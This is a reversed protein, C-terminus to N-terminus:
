IKKYAPCVIPYDCWTCIFGPRPEFNKEVIKKIDAEITNMVANMDDENRIKSVIENTKLYYLSLKSPRLKLVKETAIAYIDLQMQSKSSNSNEKLGGTKYDIIEVTGDPLPDIRDIYGKLGHEGIKFLFEEEVYLPAKFKGENNKYFEKLIREGEVKYSGAQVKNPYGTPTWHKEFLKLLEDFTLIVGGKCRDYFEKLVNHIDTGFQRAASPKGPINYIYAFKYKLPCTEYTYIQTYSLRLAKPITIHTTGLLAPVSLGTVVKAEECIKYLEVELKKLCEPVVDKNLKKIFTSIIDWIRQQYRFKTIDSTTLGIDLVDIVDKELKGGDILDIAKDKPKIVDNIFRSAKQYPKDMFSLYLKEKARTMSVYCLRREEQTHYDGKPLKEKMLEEPFYIQEPRKRTPFRNQVLGIVFVYKFELGKAQHITMLQVGEAGEILEDGELSGGAEIYSNLYELFSSLTHDEHEELYGNIFRQFRAINLIKTVNEEELSSTLNLLYRTRDFLKNIVESLDDKQATHILEVLTQKIASLKSKTDESIDIQNLKDLADYLSIESDKACTNLKVIEALDIGYYPISCVRFASLSDKPNDILRLYSIIDKIEDQEFLSLGGIVIHPIKEAVLRKIAENRHAHARYLIAFNSYSREEEPLAAYVSKIKNVVMMAEQSYNLVNILEIGAGASNETWLEKGPDYRDPDNHKILRGAVELIKKTSRYNQTLRLSKVDPFKERFKLFSAYSAGRFRYIAQDDDGVACINREESALLAVLEIQAINTDQFEDVLIHRFQKRYRDLIDPHTKFLRIANLILDGFDLCGAGQMKEQYTKYVRAIEMQKKRETEDENAKAYAAYEDPFIFEDKARGIFRLFGYICDTPDALKFHYKLGLDGLIKKFFIWQEIRDLLRFKSPLGIEFGWDRLIRHCFSHFTMVWMEDKYEEILSEVRDLMESAAKKSFTVALVQSPSLSYRDILHALRHTIVRTKGTGAGAVILIPGGVTTVAVLQEPNLDQLIKNSM